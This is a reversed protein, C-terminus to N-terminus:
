ERKEYKKFKYDAGKMIKERRNKEVISKVLDMKRMTSYGKVGVKKAEKKLEVVTMMSLRHAGRGAVANKSKCLHGTKMEVCKLLEVKSLHAYGSYIGQHKLIERLRKVTQPKAVYSSM